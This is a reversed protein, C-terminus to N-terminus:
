TLLSFDYSDKEGRVVCRSLDTEESQYLTTFNSKKEIRLNIVYIKISGYLLWKRQFHQVYASQVVRAHVSTYLMYRHYFLSNETCKVLGNFVFSPMCFVSKDWRGSSLLLFLNANSREKIVVRYPQLSDRLFPAEQMKADALQM